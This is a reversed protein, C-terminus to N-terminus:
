FGREEKVYRRYEETEEGFSLIVTDRNDRKFWNRRKNIQEMANEYEEVAKKHNLKVTEFRQEIESISTLIRDHQHRREQDMLIVVHYIQSNRSGRGGSFLFGRYLRNDANSQGARDYQNVGKRYITWLCNKTYM